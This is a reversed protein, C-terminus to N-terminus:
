SGFREYVHWVLAGSIASGRHVLNADVDIPHGIGYVEFRCKGAVAIPKGEVDDVPMQLWIGIQDERMRDPQHAVLVVNGAMADLELFGDKVDIVWKLIRLKM